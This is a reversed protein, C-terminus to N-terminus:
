AVNNKINYDIILISIIGMLLILKLVLSIHNYDKSQNANWVKITCYLLPAVIFILAYIVSLYLSSDMLNLNIYALMIGTAVVCLSAIVINTTKLGFKAPFTIIGQSIDGKTDEADKVLERIFHLIFAYIAYDKLIRFLNSMESFNAEYTVPFLDFFGITLVSLSALGAVALNGIVPIQKLTSAYYYLLAASFIFLTVFGPKGVVNSIYFGLGVGTLTLGVYMYYANNETIQNGIIVKKPKNVWDIEQDFIDNIVYGGAAIAVVALTLIVFHLDSLALLILQKRLFGFHFILMMLAIMALNQIRILRFVATM